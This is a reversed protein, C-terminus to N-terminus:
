KEATKLALLAAVPDKAFMTQCGASCLHVAYGEVTVAHAAKGKMALGCTVCKSVVQDVQGDAADAQALKARAEDTLPAPAAPAETATPSPPPPTPQSQEPRCASLSLAVLYVPLWCISSLYIRRM